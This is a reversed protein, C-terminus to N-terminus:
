VTGAVPPIVIVPVAPDLVASGVGPLLLACADVDTTERASM